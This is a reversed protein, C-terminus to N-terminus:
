RVILLAGPIEQSFDSLLGYGEGAFGFAFDIDAGTARFKRTESADTLVFTEDVKGECVLEGSLAGEGSAEATVAYKARRTESQTPWMGTLTAGDVLKVKGTTKDLTVGPSATEVAVGEGLAAAIDSRWDYEYAGVDMAVSFIRQGGAADRDTRPDWGGDTYESKAADVLPSGKLPKRNADLKFDEQPGVVCDPFTAGTFRATYNEKTATDFYCNKFSVATAVSSPLGSNIMLCNRYGLAPVGYTTVVTDLTCNDFGVPNRCSQDVGQPGIYCSYYRGFYGADGRGANGGFCNTIVCGIMVGCYSSAGCLASCDTIVCGVVRCSTNDDCFVGGGFRNNNGLNDDAAVVCAARGGTLTFGKLTANAHLYACRMAGPGRKVSINRDGDRGVIRTVEPGEDAVLTVGNAIVVRNTTYVATPYGSLSSADPTVNAMGGEDYDGPAAHVVDGSLIACGMIGALTKKATAPTWGDGLDDPANANVYWDPLSLVRVDYSIPDDGAAPGNLTVANTDNTVGNVAIGLYPRVGVYQPDPTYTVTISEGEEVPVNGSPSVSGVAPKSIAVKSVAKGYCGVVPKGDAFRLPRGEIDTSVWKYYDYDDARSAPLVGSTFVPSDVFPRLDSVSVFDPDQKVVRPSVPMQMLDWVMVGTYKEARGDPDDIGSGGNGSEFASNYVYINSGNWVAYGTSTPTRGSVHCVAKVTGDNYFVNGAGSSFTNVVSCSVASRYGRLGGNWGYCTDFETRLANGGYFIGRGCYCAEVASDAIYSTVGNFFASGGTRAESLQDSTLGVKAADNYDFSRGNRLTFGQVFVTSESCLCRAADPGCLLMEAKDGSDLQVGHAKGEIISKGKGAGKFRITKSAPVYIRNHHNRGDHVGENAEDYVGEAVYIIYNKKSDAPCAEVAKSISKFPHEADLGDYTDDDKGTAKNVYYATNIPVVGVKVESDAEPRPLVYFSDDMELPRFNTGVASDIWYGFLHEPNGFSEKTVHLMAPYGEVFAYSPTGQNVYGFTHASDIVVAGGAPAPAVTQIAGCCISGATPIPKKEFDFYVEDAPVGCGTIEGHQDIMAADGNTASYTGDIPRYDGLAPAFLQRVTVDHYNDAAPTTSSGYLSPSGLVNNRLDSLKTTEGALNNLNGVAVCNRLRVSDSALAGPGNGIFTCNVYYGGQLGPQGNQYNNVCICNLLYAARAIAGNVYARNGVILTRVAAGGLMAGGGRAACNEIRCDVLCVRADVSGAYLGGGQILPAPCTGDNKLCGGNKLTFGSIRTGAANSAYICRINDDHSIGKNVGVIFTDDRSGTALITLAKDKIFVRSPTNDAESVAGQDYTGPKVKITDGSAAKKVAEQITGFAADEAGTMGPKGYNDDDVWWTDAASAVSTALVCALLVNLKM